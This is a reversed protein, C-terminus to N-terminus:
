QHVVTTGYVEVVTYPVASVAGATATQDYNGCKFYFSKAAIAASPIHTYVEQGNITVILVGDSLALTSTYPVGLAVPSDLNVYTGAGSAEEYLLEFGGLSNSYELECLPISDDSIFVQGVTVRGSAGGGVQLVKGAVTLANIGTSRWAAQGGEPTMERLETRCHQSGSTTVGTAPDMFVQGGDDARYFYANSFGAALQSPPITTLSTGSGIPLQLSWITFDIASVQSADQATAGGAGSQGSMDSSTDSSDAGGSGSSASGDDPSSATADGTSGSSDSGQMYAGDANGVSKGSKSCVSLLFCLCAISLRRSLTM